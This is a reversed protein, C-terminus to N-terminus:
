KENSKKSRLVKRLDDEDLFGSGDIDLEKFREQIRDIDAKEVLRLNILMSELFESYSVKGDGDTDMNVLRKVTLRQNIVADIYKENERDILFQVYKGVAAAILATSLLIYVWIWKRNEDSVGQDGYGVTSSTVVAWYLSNIFNDNQAQSYSITGISLTTFTILLVHIIPEPILNTLMERLNLPKKINLRSERIEDAKQQVTKLFETQRNILFSAIVSLAYALSTIGFFIFGCCILRGGQTTPTLDGYGVTTGTVVMFYVGEIFTWGEIHSFIISGFCLYCALVFASGILKRYEKLFLRVSKPLPIGVISKRVQKLEVDETETTDTTEAYSYYSSTTSAASNRGDITPPALLSATSVAFRQSNFGPSSGPTPPEEVLLPAQM